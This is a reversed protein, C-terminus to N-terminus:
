APWGAEIDITALAAADAAGTIEGALMAERDFCGQVHARAAQAAGILASHDLLIFSGDSLKWNVSYSNDLVSAVVAATLKAQTKEDSPISLGGVTVGATEARWRRDALASLKTAKAETLTPTPLPTPTNGAARWALFEQYDRNSEAAPIIAGDVDRRIATTYSLESYVM